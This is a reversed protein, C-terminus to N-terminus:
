KKLPYRKLPLVAASNRRCTLLAPRRRLDQLWGPERTRRCHHEPSHSMRAETSERAPPLATPSEPVGFCTPVGDNEDGAKSLDLLDQVSLRSSDALSVFAWRYPCLLDALLLAPGDAGRATKVKQRRHERLRGVQFFAIRQGRPQAGRATRRQRPRVTQMSSSTAWSRSSSVLDERPIGPTAAISRRWTARPAM